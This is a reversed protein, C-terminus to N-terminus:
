DPRVELSEEDEEDYLAAESTSACFRWGERSQVGYLTLSGGEGGVEVIVQPEPRPSTTDHDTAAGACAVTPCTHSTM